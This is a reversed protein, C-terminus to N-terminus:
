FEYIDRAKQLLNIVQKCEEISHTSTIGIRLRGKNSPVAPSVMTATFLGQKMLWNAVNVTKDDDGILIPIIPSCTNM